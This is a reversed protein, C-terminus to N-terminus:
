ADAPTGSAVVSVVAAVGRVTWQQRAECAYCSLQLPVGRVAAWGVWAPRPRPSASPQPDAAAAQRTRWRRMRSRRLRRRRLAGSPRRRSLVCRMALADRSTVARVARAHARFRLVSLAGGPGWGGGRDREGSARGRGGAGAGRWDRRGSQGGGARVEEKKKVAMRRARELSERLERDGDEDEGGVAPGDRGFAAGTM